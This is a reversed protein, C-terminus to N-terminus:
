LGMAYQAEKRFKDVIMRKEHNPFLADFQNCSDIAAQFRHMELCLSLSALLSKEILARNGEEAPDALVAIRQYAALQNVMNPMIEAMEFAVQLDQTAAVVEGYAAIAADMQDLEVRSRAELLRADYYLGTKPFKKILKEITQCAMDYENLGYLAAAKGYLARAVFKQKANLLPVADFAKEAMAFKKGTLLSEGTSIYIDYGYNNADKVMHDLVQEAIDFRGEDAAAGILGALAIRVDPSDPYREEMKELVDFAVDIHGALVHVQATERMVRAALDSEPFENLFRDYVDLDKLCHGQFYVSKELASGQEGATRLMNELRNFHEAAMEWENMKMACDARARQAQISHNLDVVQKFYRGAAAWQEAKYAKWGFYSLIDARHVDEPFTNLYLDFIREGKRLKGDDIYCRGVGLVAAPSQIDGKFRECMYEVTMLVSEDHGQNLFCIAVNRLAEPSKSSEPYYNLADLYQNLAQDYEGEETLRAGFRFKNVLFAHRHKTLDIRIKKEKAEIFARINEVKEEALPGYDSDGYKIYVNYFHKFAEIAPELENSKLYELRYTEGLYYRCGALPSISSVPIKNAILNKEINQLVEAQGILVSRAEPWDGEHLFLRAWTVVSQGYWIDMAGLQVDSCLSLLEARKKKQAAKSLSEHELQGMLADAMQAKIQHIEAKNRETQLRAAYADYSEATADCCCVVM